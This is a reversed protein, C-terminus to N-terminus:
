VTFQSQRDPMHRVPFHCFSMVDNEHAFLNELVEFSYIQELFNSSSLSLTLLHAKRFTSPFYFNELRLSMFFNKKAHFELARHFAECLKSTTLLKPQSSPFSGHLTLRCSCLASSYCFPLLLIKVCKEVSIM